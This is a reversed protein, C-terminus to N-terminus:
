AAKTAEVADCVRVYWLSGAESPVGLLPFMEGKDLWQLAIKTDEGWHHVLRYMGAIEVREGPANRLIAM